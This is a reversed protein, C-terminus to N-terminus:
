TKTGKHPTKKNERNKYLKREKKYLNYIMNRIKIKLFKLNLPKSKRKKLSNRQNKM